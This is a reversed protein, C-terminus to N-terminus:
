PFATLAWNEHQVEVLIIFSNSSSGLSHSIDADTVM